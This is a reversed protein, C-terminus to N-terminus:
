AGSQDSWHGGRSPAYNVCPPAVLEGRGATRLATRPFIELTAPLVQTGSIQLGGLRTMVPSTGTIEIGTALGHRILRSPRAFGPRSSRLLKGRVTRGCAPLPPLASSPRANDRAQGRGEQVACLGPAARRALAARAEMCSLIRMTSKPEWTVCSMARRTRS